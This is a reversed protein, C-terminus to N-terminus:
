DPELGLVVVREGHVPREPGLGSLLKGQHFRILPGGRYRPQGKKHRRDQYPGGCNKVAEERHLHKLVQLIYREGTFLLFLLVRDWRGAPVNVVAPAARQRDAHRDVRNADIRPMNRILRYGRLQHSGNEIQVTLLEFFIEPASGFVMAAEHRDFAFDGGFLRPAQVVQLAVPDLESGFTDALIWIAADGGM